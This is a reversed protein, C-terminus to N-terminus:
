QKFGCFVICKVRNLWNLKYTANSRHRFRTFHMTNYPNLCYVFLYLRSSVECVPARQVNPLLLINLIWLPKIQITITKNNIKINRWTWINWSYLSRDYMNISWSESKIDGAQFTRRLCRTIPDDTQRDTRKNTRLETRSLSLTCLKLSSVTVLSPSYTWRHTGWVDSVDCAGPTPRPWFIPSLSKQWVHIEVKNGGPCKM